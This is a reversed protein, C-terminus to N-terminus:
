GVELWKLADEIREVVKVQEPALVIRREVESDRFSCAAGKSVFDLV